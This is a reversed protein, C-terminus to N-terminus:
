ERIDSQCDNLAQQVERLDVKSDLLNVIRALEGTLSAHIENKLHDLEGGLRGYSQQWEQKGASIIQKIFEATEEVDKKRDDQLVKFQDRFIRCEDVAREANTEVRCIREDIKEERSKRLVAMESQYTALLAQCEARIKNTAVTMYDQDVKKLVSDRLSELINVDAKKSLAQLTTLKLGELERQLTDVM